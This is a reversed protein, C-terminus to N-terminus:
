FLIYPLEDPRLVISNLFITFYLSKSYFFLISVVLYLSSPIYMSYIYIDVCLVLVNEEM